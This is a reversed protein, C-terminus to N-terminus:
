ISSDKWNMEAIFKRIKIILKEKMKYIKKVDDIEMIELMRDPDVDERLCKLLLKDNENLQKEIENFLINKIAKSHPPTRIDNIRELFEEEVFGDLKNNSRKKLHDRTLNIVVAHLWTTFKADPNIQYKQLIMANNDFLKGWVDHVADFEETKHKCFGNVVSNVIHQYRQVFLDKASDDGAACRDILEMVANEHGQNKM